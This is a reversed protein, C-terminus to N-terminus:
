AHLYRTRGADASLSPMSVVWHLGVGADGRVEAAIFDKELIQADPVRLLWSLSIVTGLAEALSSRKKILHRLHDPLVHINQRFM